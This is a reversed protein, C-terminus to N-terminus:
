PTTAKAIAATAGEYAEQETCAQCHHKQGYGNSQGYFECRAESPFADRLAELAALLDPAAAILRADPHDVAKFWEAHHERGPVVAAFEDARRMINLAMGDATRLRPAAASMGWRVFDLVTLDYGAAGCLRIEKNKESLEWRWPGRTHASV